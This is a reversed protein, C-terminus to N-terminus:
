RVNLVVLINERRGKVVALPGQLLNGKGHKIYLKTKIIKYSKTTDLRYNM